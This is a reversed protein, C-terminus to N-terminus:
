CIINPLLLTRIQYELTLITYAETALGLQTQAHCLEVGAENLVFFNWIVEKIWEWWRSMHDVDFISVEWKTPSLCNKRRREKFADYAVSQRNQQIISHSILPCPLYHPQNGIYTQRTGQLYKHKDNNHLISWCTVKPHNLRSMVTQPYTPKM